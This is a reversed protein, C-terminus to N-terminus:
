RGLIHIVAVAEECRHFGGGNEAIALRAGDVQRKGAEHRLQTVLEYIQALGTAGIPHGKCELGGSPNIPIRGGLRTEGREAIWGGQGYDCFGLNESQQVEAFASADHVEALSMDHPGFGAKEYAKTAAIRGIQQQLDRPDRNTGGSVISAHVKIARSRDLRELGQRNCVIAAAAGDSIPSCMPLTLPWCIMRAALVEDISMDNTYQALPNMTSHFHNKAAVAALQRETTGYTKMHYKALYSYVDMFLSRQDANAPRGAPAHVGEGLAALTAATETARTVDWAGDFVAFGRSKDQHFMKDVGVALAIDSQGALVHTCALHLATSSSACANEVNTVALEEFGMDRLAIQGAVMHQGEIPSQTANGFFAAGIDHQAISADALAANVAERTLQKVSKDLFKGFRTMGVGVVYVESM